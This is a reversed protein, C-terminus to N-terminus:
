NEKEKGLIKNNYTVIIIPIAQVAIYLGLYYPDINYKNIFEENMRCPREFSAYKHYNHPTMANIITKGYAKKSKSKICDIDLGTSYKLIVENNSDILKLTITDPGIANEHANDTRFFNFCLNATYETKDFATVKTSLLMVTAPDITFFDVNFEDCAFMEKVSIIDFDEGKSTFSPTADRFTILNINIYRTILDTYKEGAEEISNYFGYTNFNYIEYRPAALPIEQFKLVDDLVLYRCIDKDTKNVWEQLTIRHGKVLKRKLDHIRVDSIM